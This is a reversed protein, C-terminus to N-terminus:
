RNANGKYYACELNGESKVKEFLKELSITGKKKDFVGAMYIIYTTFYAHPAFRFFESYERMTDIIDRRSAQGEFYFWLDLFLRARVIHQGVRELRQNLSTSLM